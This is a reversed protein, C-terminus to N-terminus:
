GGLLGSPRYVHTYGMGKPTFFGVGRRSNRAEITRGNGVYIATHGKRFLIDGPRLNNPDYSMEQFGKDRLRMGLNGTYTDSPLGTAKAVLSSCDFYGDKNRYAQSYKAGVGLEIAKQVYSPVQQGKLFELQEQMLKSYQEQNALGRQTAENSMTLYRNRLDLGQKQLQYNLENFYRANDSNVKTRYMDNATGLLGVKDIQDQTNDIKQQQGFDFTQMVPQSNIIRQMNGAFPNAVPQWQMDRLLGAM